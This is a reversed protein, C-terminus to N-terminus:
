NQLGVRVARVSQGFYRYSDFFNVVGIIFERAHYPYDYLSSSWYCGSSGSDYLYNGKRYGATPLFIGNGNSATYLKGRVGNLTAWTSTTNSSLENWETMTPMRWDAGWNATAADYKTGAIDSGIDHCTNYSGDCHIYTSWEFFGKQQTEGWSFYNGYGEPKSAGVNCCAWKTGSPLGLDIAHPHNDDPCSPFLGVVIVKISATQRSMADTVTVISVGAKYAKIIVENGVMEVSAIEPEGSWVSYLSNGSIVQVEYQEGQKITVPSSTSLVLDVLEKEANVV